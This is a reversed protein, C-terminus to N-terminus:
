HKEEETKDKRRRGYTIDLENEKYHKVTLDLKKKMLNM